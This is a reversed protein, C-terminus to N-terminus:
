LFVVAVAAIFAIFALWCGVAIATCIAVRRATTSDARRAARYCGYAGAGGIAGPIAGGLSVVPIAMCAIVFGWVWRPTWASNPVVTDHINTSM